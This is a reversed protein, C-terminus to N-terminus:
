KVQIRRSDSEESNLKEELGRMCTSGTVYPIPPTEPRDLILYLYSIGIATLFIFFPLFLIILITGITETKRTM